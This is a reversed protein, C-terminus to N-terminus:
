EPSCSRKGIVVFNVANKRRSKNYEELVNLNKSKPPRSEVLSANGLDKAVGNVNNSASDKSQEKSKLGKSASQAKAVVDDPSPGAFPDTSFENIKCELYFPNYSTSLAPANQTNHSEGIIAEAFASPSSHMVIPDDEQPLEDPQPTLSTDPLPEEIPQSKPDSSHHRKLPYKRLRQSTARMQSEAAETKSAPDNFDSSKSKGLKDLLVVSSSSVKDGVSAQEGAKQKRAAALAALKSTKGGNKSSGGLLGGRPYLPEILIEARKDRPVNLWPCDAFYEKVTLPRSCFSRSQSQLGKLKYPDSPRMLM